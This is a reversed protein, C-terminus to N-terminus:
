VAEFGVAAGEIRAYYTEVPLGDFRQRLEARVAAMDAIQKSRLDGGHPCFGGDVYWRCDDHAILVVREPRAIGMMFKMWRWGAWSFKPLYQILTLFHPGGPVAILAYSEVGLGRRMFEQIPSQYRPDSCHVVLAQARERPTFTAQYIPPV